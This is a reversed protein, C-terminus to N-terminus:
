KIFVNRRNLKRMLETSMRSATMLKSGCIFQITDVDDGYKNTALGFIKNYETRSSVPFVTGKGDKFKVLVHGKM